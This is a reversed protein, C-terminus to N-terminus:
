LRISKIIEWYMKLRSRLGRSFGHKEEKMVQSLQPLRVEVVKIKHQEAYRTLALEVGYRTDILKPVSEFLERKIARQGSLNPAIKQALDTSLRGEEFIGISMSAEGALVPAVLSEVHKSQLGVLDADVFLLIDSEVAESGAKMAGGKGVNEKLEVVHVPFGKAIEATKDVSGDSVVVIEDIAPCELLCKIVTGITQEENYAPVVAAVKM